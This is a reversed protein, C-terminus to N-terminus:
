AYKEGESEVWLEILKGITIDERYDKSHIWYGAAWDILYRAERNLTENIKKM